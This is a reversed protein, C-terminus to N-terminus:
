WTMGPNYVWETVPGEKWTYEYINYMRIDGAINDMIGYVLYTKEGDKEGAPFSGALNAFIQLGTGEGEPEERKHVTTVGDGPSFSEVEKPPYGDCFWTKPTVKVGYKGTGFDVDCLALSCIINGPTHETDTRGYLRIFPKFSGGAYYRESFDPNLVTYERSEGTCDHSSEEDANLNKKVTFTYRIEQGDVGLREGRVDVAENAENIKNDGVYIVDTLDWCGPHECAQFDPNNEMEAELEEVTKENGAAYPEDVWTYEYLDRARVQGEKGDCLDMVVYIVDDRDIMRPFDAKASFLVEEKVKGHRSRDNSDSTGPLRDVKQRWDLTGVRRDFYDLVTVKQGFPDDGSEVRAFYLSCFVDGPTDPTDLTYSFGWSPAATEGAAYTKEITFYRYGISAKEGIHAEGGTTEFRFLVKDWEEEQRTVTIDMTGDNRKEEPLDLMKVDTQMWCGNKADSGVFPKTHLESLVEAGEAGTEIESIEVKEAPEQEAEIVSNVPPEETCGAMTIMLLAASLLSLIRKGNM